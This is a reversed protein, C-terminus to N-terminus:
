PPQVWWKGGAGGARKNTELDPRFRSRSAVPRAPGQHNTLAQKWSRSLWDAHLLTKMKSDSYFPQFLLALFFVPRAWYVRIPAPHAPDQSDPGRALTSPASPARTSSHPSSSHIHSSPSQHILLHWFLHRISSSSPSPPVPTWKQPVPFIAPSVAPFVDRFPPRAPPERRRNSGAEGKGHPTRTATAGLSRSLSWHRPMEQATLGILPGHAPRETALHASRTTSSGTRPFPRPRPRSPEQCPGLSHGGEPTGRGLRRSRLRGGRCAEM